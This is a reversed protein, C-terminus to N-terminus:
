DKVEFVNGGNRKVGAITKSLWVGLVGM